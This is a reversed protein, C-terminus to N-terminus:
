KSIGRNSKEIFHLIHKIEDTQALESKIKKVAQSVNLGSNYILKYAKKVTEITEDTFGARKLGIVNLGEYELPNGSFLGYPLIDKVVMSHAGVMTYAGIKVFQHIGVLGGLRVNDEIEVHGAIAVSNALICNSGILCDHGAHSYAMFLCNDGIFSKGVEATARSITVCERIVNRDGIIIETPEGAYKLDQPHASIVSGQYIKNNKGIRAGTNITVNNFIKTGEGIIVGSEVISFAGIEVDSAIEAKSSIIATSHIEPM